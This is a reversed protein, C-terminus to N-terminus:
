AAPPEGFHRRRVWFWRLALGTAGLAFVGPELAIAATIWGPASGRVHALLAVVVAWAALHCSVLVAGLRVQRDRAGSFSQWGCALWALGTPILSLAGFLYIGFAGEGQPSVWNRFALLFVYGVSLGSALLLGFVGDLARRERLDDVRVPGGRQRDPLEITESESRRDGGGDVM